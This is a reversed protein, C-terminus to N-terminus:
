YRTPRLYRAHRPKLGWLHRAKDLTGSFNTLLDELRFPMAHPERGLLPLYSRYLANWNMLAEVIRERPLDALQPLPETDDLRNFSIYSVLWSYVNRISIAFKVVGARFAA